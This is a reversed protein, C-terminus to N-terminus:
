DVYSGGNPQLDRMIIRYIDILWWIVLGGLSVIQLLGQWTYGLYLRHIGIFGVFCCLIAILWSKNDTKEIKAIRKKLRNLKRSEKKTLNPKAELEIIRTKVLELAVESTIPVKSQINNPINNIDQVNTASASFLNTLIFLIVWIIKKFVQM